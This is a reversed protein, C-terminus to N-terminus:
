ACGGLREARPWAEVHEPAIVYVEDDGDAPAWLESSGLRFGTDRAGPPVGDLIRFSARLDQWEGRVYMHRGGETPGGVPIGTILQDPWAGCHFEETFRFSYVLGRSGDEDGPGSWACVAEGAPVLRCGPEQLRADVVPASTSTSMPPAAEDAVVVSPVGEEACGAFLAMSVVLVAMSRVFTLRGRLGGFNGTM